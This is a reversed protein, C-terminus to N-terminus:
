LLNALQEKREKWKPYDFVFTYQEGVEKALLEASTLVRNVFIYESIPDKFDSEPPYNDNFIEQYLHNLEELEEKLYPNILSLRDAMAEVKPRNLTNLTAHLQRNLNTIEVVDKDILVLEGIGSRALAEAVYSGVGGIGAILIKAKRLREFAPLGILNITREFLKTEKM